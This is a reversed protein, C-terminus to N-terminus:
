WIIKKLKETMEYYTGNRYISFKDACIIETRDPYNLTITARTDTVNQKSLLKLSKLESLLDNIQAKETIQKKKIKDAFWAEFTSCDVSVM